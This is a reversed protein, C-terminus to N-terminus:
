EVAYIEILKLKMLGIKKPNNSDIINMELIDPMLLLRKLANAKVVTRVNPLDYGNRVTAQFLAVTPKKEDIVKALVYIEESTFRDTLYYISYGLLISIILFIIIAMNYSKKM